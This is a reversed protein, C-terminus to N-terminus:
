SFFCKKTNKIPQLPMVFFVKATSDEIFFRATGNCATGEFILSPGIFSELSFRDLKTKGITPSLNEVNVVSPDSL